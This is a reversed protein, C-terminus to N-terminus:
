RHEGEIVEATVATDGTTLVLEGGDVDVTVTDGPKATGALLLKAVRQSMEKNVYRKIPRAGFSEDYATEGIFGIAADSVKLTVDKDSLLAALRRLQLAVIEKIEEHNLSTFVITEDVRNLFEPRFSQRLTELVSTRINEYVMQRNYDGIGKTEQQIYEAAINSTMILITNKFSVTRGKNDTLRGDDLLQLLINFVEPHAKEIEDLLVV